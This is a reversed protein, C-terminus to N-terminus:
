LDFGRAALESRVIERYVGELGDLEMPNLKIMRLIKDECDKLVPRSGEPMENNVQNIIKKLDMLYNPGVIKKKHAASCNLKLELCDLIEKTPLSEKAYFIPADHKSSSLEGDALICYSTENRKALCYIEYRQPKMECNEVIYATDPDMNSLKSRIVRFEDDLHVVRFHASLCSRLEELYMRSRGMLIIVPM